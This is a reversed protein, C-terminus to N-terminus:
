YVCMLIDLDSDLVRISAAPCQIVASTSSGCPGGRSCLGTPVDCCLEVVDVPEADVPEVDVPEADVRKARAKPAPEVPEVPEDPEDPEVPEDPETPEHLATVLITDLVSHSPGYPQCSFVTGAILLPWRQM